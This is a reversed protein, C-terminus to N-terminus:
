RGEDELADLVAEDLVSIPRSGLFGAATRAPVDGRGPRPPCRLGAAQASPLEFEPDLYPPVDYFPWAEEAGCPPM